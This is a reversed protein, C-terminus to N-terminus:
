GLPIALLAFGTIRPPDSGSLILKGIARTDRAREKTSFEIHLPESIRIGTLDLGRRNGSPGRCPM